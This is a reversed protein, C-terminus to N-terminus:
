GCFISQDRSPVHVLCVLFELGRRAACIQIFGTSDHERNRPILGQQDSGDFPPKIEVGHSPMGGVGDDTKFWWADGLDQENTLGGKDTYQPIAM